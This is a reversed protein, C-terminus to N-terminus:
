DCLLEGLLLLSYYPTFFPITFSDCLLLLLFLHFLTSSLLFISHFHLSYFFSDFHTLLLFFSYYLLPLLHVRVISCNAFNGGPSLFIYVCEFNFGLSKRKSFSRILSLFRNFLYNFITFHKM